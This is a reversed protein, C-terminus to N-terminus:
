RMAATTSVQLLEHFCAVLNLFDTPIDNVDRQYIATLHWCIVGLALRISSSRATTGACVDHETIHSDAM